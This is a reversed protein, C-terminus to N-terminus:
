RIELRDLSESSISEGLIGLSQNKASVNQRRLRGPNTPRMM